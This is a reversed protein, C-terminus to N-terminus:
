SVEQYFEGGLHHERLRFSLQHPQLQSEIHAEERPCVDRHERKAVFDHGAAEAEAPGPVKKLVPEERLQNPVKRNHPEDRYNKM